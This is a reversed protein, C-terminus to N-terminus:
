NQLCLSSYSQQKQDASQFDTAGYLDSMAMAPSLKWKESETNEVSVPEIGGVGWIAIKLLFLDTQILITTKMGPM